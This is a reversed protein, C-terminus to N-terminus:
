QLQAAKQREQEAVQWAGEAKQREQDAKHREQEALHWAREARQWLWTAGAVLGGLVLTLAALVYAAAPAPRVAREVAGLPRARIPEGEQWRRLDDALEQCDAYRDQPRKALARLRIMELDRPVRPNRVRPAVPETHVQHSLVLATPGSFPVEGCLLEYLIVGLSYQNSAPLPAEWCDVAEVNDDSGPLCSALECWRRYDDAVLVTKKESTM